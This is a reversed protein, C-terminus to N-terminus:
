KAPECIVSGSLLPPLINSTAEKEVAVRCTPGVISVGGDYSRLRHSQGAPFSTPAVGFAV